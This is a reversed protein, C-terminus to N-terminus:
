MTLGLDVILLVSIFLELGRWSPFVKALGAFIVYGFAWFVWLVNGVVVRKSPAVLENVISRSTLPFLDCNILSVPLM